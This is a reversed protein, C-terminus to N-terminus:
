DNKKEKLSQLITSEYNSTGFYAQLRIRRFFSKLDDELTHKNFKASRPCFNLGKSLLKFTDVNFKHQSLNIMRGDPDNELRCTKRLQKTLARFSADHHHSTRSHGRGLEKTPPRNGKKRYKYSKTNRETHFQQAPTERTPMQMQKGTTKPYREPNNNDSHEAIRQTTKM